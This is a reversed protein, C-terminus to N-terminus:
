EEKKGNIFSSVVGTLSVVSFVGALWPKDLYLALITIALFVLISLFAFIQGLLREKHGRKNDVELLSVSKRTVEHRLKREEDTIQQFYAVLGPDVEKYKTLEEATPMPSNDIVIHEESLTGVGDIRQVTASTRKVSNKGM